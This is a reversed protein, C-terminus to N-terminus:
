NARKQTKAIYYKQLEDEFIEKEMSEDTCEKPSSPIMIAM